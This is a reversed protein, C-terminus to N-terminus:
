GRSRPATAAPSRRAWWAPRGARHLPALLAAFGALLVMFLTRGRAPSGALARRLRAPSGCPSRCRPRRASGARRGRGTPRCSSRPRRAPSGSAALLRAARELGRGAALERQWVAFDAYQVAAGAAAVAARGAFARRLAGLVERVLVRMSWGDSVIHHLTLLLGHETTRWACCPPACCRGARSTSRGRAGRGAALRRRRRPAGSRRCARSTSWPCAAPAAAARDGAGAPRRARAFTTRLAEHRRVVEGLAAALAAPTSGRGRPAAAMAINYAPAGPTWATSSGSGSRPSPSRAAPSRPAPAVPAAVAAGAAAGSRRAAVVAALGRWRRTGRLARAAAARRRLRDRVRSVVSPPWCPTAASSSSTTTRRRRPRAAAARGLHGALVEEVPTRAARGPRRAAQRERRRCRGGTSRATPPSRCPRCTSSPPRCWTRRAAPRRPAAAAPRALGAGRRAGPGCLGRTASGARGRAGRGGGRAVGALGGLAAEIEGPEIRFGRIKVQHDARGAFVSDGDPRYRGLDGTRYLRDGPTASRSPVFREARAPRSRRSLRPRSVAHPDLDGGARRHRGAPGLARARAPRRRRDWPGAPIRHAAATWGDVM